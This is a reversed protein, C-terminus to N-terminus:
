AATPNPSTKRLSARAKSQVFAIFHSVNIYSDLQDREAATLLGDQAKASLEAMRTHDSEAFRLALLGKAAEPSLDGVEPLIVRGLIAVETDTTLM